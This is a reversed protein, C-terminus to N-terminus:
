YVYVISHPRNAVLLLSHENHVMARLNGAIRQKSTKLQVSFKCILERTDVKGRNRVENEILRRIKFNFSNMILGGEYKSIISNYM